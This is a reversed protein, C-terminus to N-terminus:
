CLAAAIRAIYFRGHHESGWFDNKHYLDFMDGGMAAETMFYLHQQSNFCAALRIVFPSSLRQMASKENKIHQQMKNQVIMGKSMAKLALTQGTVQCKVLTVSGFAGYGLVGLWQGM